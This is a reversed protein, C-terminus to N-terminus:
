SYQGGAAQLRPNQCHQALVVLQDAFFCSCFSQFYYKLLFYKVAYAILMPAAILYFLHPSQSWGSWCSDDSFTESGSSCSSTDSVINSSSLEMTVAWITVFILPMVSITKSKLIAFINKRCIKLKQCVVVTTTVQSINQRHIDTKIDELHSSM